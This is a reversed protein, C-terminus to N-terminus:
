TTTLANFPKAAYQSHCELLSPVTRPSIRNPSLGIKQYPKASGRPGNNPIAWSTSKISTQLDRLIHPLTIGEPTSLIPGPSHSSGLVLTGRRQTFLM